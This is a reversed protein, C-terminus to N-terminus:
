TGPRFQDARRVLARNEHAWRKTTAQSFVPTAGAKSCRRAGRQIRCSLQLPVAQGRWTGSGSGLTLETTEGLRVRFESVAAKGDRQQTIRKWMTKVKGNRAPATRLTMCSV